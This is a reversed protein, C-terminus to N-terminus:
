LTQYLMKESEAFYVMWKVRLALEPCSYLFIKMKEQTEIEPKCVRWLTPEMLLATIQCSPKRLHVSGFLFKEM